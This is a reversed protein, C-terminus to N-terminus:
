VKCLFPNKDSCSENDWLMFGHSDDLAACNDDWDHRDAEEWATYGLPSGDAWAWAWSHPSFSLGLWVDEEEDEWEQVKKLFNAVARHEGPDLISALHGHYHQCFAEARSWSLEQAFYGYCRGNHSLWGNRCSGAQASATLQGLALCVLLGLSFHAM